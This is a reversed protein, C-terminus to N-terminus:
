SKRRRLFLMSLGGLGALALTTPEPVAAVGFMNMEGSASQLTDSNVDGQTLGIPNSFPNSWGLDAATLYSTASGNLGLIIMEISSGTAGTATTTIQIPSGGNFQTIQGGTKGGQVGTTTDVLLGTTASGSGSSLNTVLQWSGALMSTITAIPNGVSTVGNTAVQDNAASGNLGMNGTTGVSTLPDSTGVPAWLVEINIDNAGAVVGVSPTTFEDYVFKSSATGITVWDQGFASFGSAVIITALLAIQKKM